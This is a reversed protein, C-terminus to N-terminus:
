STETRSKKLDQIDQKRMWRAGSRQVKVLPDSFVLQFRYHQCDQDVFSDSTLCLIILESDNSKRMKGLQKRFFETGNCILPLTISVGNGQEQCVFWSPIEKQAVWMQLLGYPDHNALAAFGCCMKSIVKSDRADLSKCDRASLEKISSPLEPLVKLNCCFNLSLRTLRPLQHINIPIRVFKNFSLELDTLSVLNGLNYSLSEQSTPFCGSLRLTDLSTLGSLSHLSQILNPCDSLDLVRFSKLEQISEPLSTLRKCERLHLEKLGVFFGITTPLEEIATRSLSLISLHKMCEGFEPLKKMSKCGGLNLVQLSTMELKSGLTELSSCPGLNVKVLSKHRTLYSPFDNLEVCLGLNLIELNPAESLDPIQKLQVCGYLNLHKLKELSKKGHWVQVIKDSNNLDIEVLEYYQDDFPLTKMPCDRWRLVRLSCPIYSLISAQVGDLILLKLQSINSFTLDRWRERYQEREQYIERDGVVISQTAETGKNQTLVLNIDQCSRLRRRESPDDPSEQIVIHKAMEELLDHMELSGNENKTLLSRDVLTAIGDEAPYGCAELIDIVYEKRKGKFFYAIDLFIKKDVTDLSDYSIKLRDFIDVHQFSRLKALTSHWVEILRKYLHSGLVELALPLGACYKVVQKCLGLYEEVPNQQKFAKLCFLDFAESEALGEVNYIERADYIKLLHM